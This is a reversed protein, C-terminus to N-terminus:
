VIGVQHDFYCSDSFHWAFAKPAWWASIIDEQWGIEVTFAQLRFTRKPAVGATAQIDPVPASSDSMTRRALTQTPDFQSLQHGGGRAREERSLPCATPLRGCRNTSGPM